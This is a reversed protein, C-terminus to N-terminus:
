EGAENIAQGIVAVVQPVVANGLARIRDVRDPVGNAVRGVDPETAWCARGKHGRERRRDGSRRGREEGQLDTRLGTRVPSKETGALAPHSGNPTKHREDRSARRIDSQTNAVVFIRKRLQPSGVAEASVIFWEADYGLESLGWLIDGMGASLLGPSNELIVFRPRFLSVARAVEPWLWREDAQALRKGALSVPQCPIGATIVDVGEFDDSKLEKIDGVIPVDPWHKNLIKQCYADIEVFGITEFGGAMELGLSFGGIGAFMDLVRMQDGAAAQRTSKM